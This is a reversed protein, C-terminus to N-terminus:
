RYGWAVAVTKSYVQGDQRHLTQTWLRCTCNPGGLTDTLDPLRGADADRSVSGLRKLPRDISSAVYVGTGTGIGDAMLGMVGVNCNAGLPIKIADSPPYVNRPYGEVPLAKPPHQQSNPDPVAAYEGWIIQALDNHQCGVAQFVQLNPTEEESRDIIEDGWMVFCIGATSGESAGERHIGNWFAAAWDHLTLIKLRLGPEFGPLEGNPHPIVAVPETFALSQLRRRHEAPLDYATTPTGDPIGWTDAFTRYADAIQRYLGDRLAKPTDNLLDLLPHLASPLIQKVRELYAEEIADGMENWEDILDPISVPSAAARIAIALDKAQGIRDAMQQKIALIRDRVERIRRRREEVYIWPTPDSGGPGKGHNMAESMQRGYWVNARVAFNVMDRTYPECHRDFVAITPFYGRYHALDRALDTYPRWYSNVVDIMKSVSDAGVNGQSDAAPIPFSKYADPHKYISNKIWPADGAGEVIEKVRAIGVENHYLNNKMRDVATQMEQSLFAIVTMEAEGGTKQGTRVDINPIKVAYKLTGNAQSRMILNSIVGTKNDMARLAVRELDGTIPEKAFKEVTPPTGYLTDLQRAEAMIRPYRSGEVIQYWDGDFDGGIQAATRTNFWISGRNIDLHPNTGRANVWTKIDGWHRIPNRFILHRGPSVSRTAFTDDMLTEDPLGIASVFAPKGNIALRRWRRALRERIRTAMWPHHQLEGWKDSDMIDLLPDTYLDDDAEDDGEFDEEEGVSGSFDIDADVGARLVASLRKPSHYAAAIEACEAETPPVIDLELSEWSFWAWLMQSGKATRPEEVYNVVGIYTEEVTKTGSPPKHGKAGSHPLILDIGRDGDYELWWTGLDDDGPDPNATVTGKWVYRGPIGVRIQMPTDSAGIAQAFDPTCKAHADGPLFAEKYDHEIGSGGKMKRREEPDEEDVWLIRLNSFHHIVRCETLLISGYNIRGMSDKFYVEGVNGDTFIFNGHTRASGAIDLYLRSKRDGVPAGAVLPIGKRMRDILLAEVQSDLKIGPDVAGVVMLLEPHMARILNNHYTITSDLWEQGGFDYVAMETKYKPKKEFKQELRKM